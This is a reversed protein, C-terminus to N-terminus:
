FFGQEDEALRRPSYKGACRGTGPGRARAAARGPAPHLGSRRSHTAAADVMRELALKALLQGFHTQKANPGSRCGDTAPRVARGLDGPLDSAYEACTPQQLGAPGGPVVWCGRENLGRVVSESGFTRAAGFRKSACGVGVAGLWTQTPSM